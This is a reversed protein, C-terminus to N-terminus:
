SIGRREIDFDLTPRTVVLVDASPSDVRSDSARLQVPILRAGGRPRTQIGERRLRRLVASPSMGLIAAIERASEGQDVYHRM